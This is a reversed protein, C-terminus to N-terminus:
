YTYVFGISATEVEYGSDSFLQAWEFTIANHRSVALNIGLGFSLETDSRSASYGFGQATVKGAIVGLLGYVSFSDALPLIGKGYVGFYRDVKVTVPVGLHSVTDDGVGFGARAEFGFNRHIDRGLRFALAAPEATPFGDERYTVSGYSVGAYVGEQASAAGACCAMVVAGALSRM